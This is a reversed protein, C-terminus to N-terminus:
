LDGGSFRTLDNQRGDNQRSELRVGPLIIAPLIISVDVQCVANSYQRYPSPPSGFSQREAIHTM